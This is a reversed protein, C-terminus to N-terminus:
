EEAVSNRRRYEGPTMGTARRFATSFQSASSFGCEVAISSIKAKGRLLEKAAGLRRFLILQKPPMGCRQRFLHRFRDYSYGVTAALAPLDIDTNFYDFIYRCASELSQGASKVATGSQVSQASLRALVVALYLAAVTAETTDRLYKMGAIHSILAISEADATYMGGECDFDRCEFTCFVVHTRTDIVESHTTDPPIVCVTGEKYKYIVDGIRSSGEGSLYFVLEWSSHIHQPITDGSERIRDLAYSVVPLEM